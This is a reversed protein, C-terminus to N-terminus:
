ETTVNEKGESVLHQYHFKKGQESSDSSNSDEKRYVTPNLSVSPKRFILHIFSPIM